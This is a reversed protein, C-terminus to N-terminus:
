QEVIEGVFADEEEEGHDGYATISSFQPFTMANPLDKTGERISTIESM